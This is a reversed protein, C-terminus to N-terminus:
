IKQKATVSINTVGNLYKHAFNLRKVPVGISAGNKMAYKDIVSNCLM